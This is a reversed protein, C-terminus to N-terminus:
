AALDQVSNSGGRYQGPTLGTYRKFVRTFHSQDFFGSDLATEALDRGSALLTRARAVRRNVLYAHPTMGTARRFVRLLHFRSLAAERALDDLSVDEALRADLYDRLRRVVRPERGADPVRAAVDAHRQLLLAITEVVLDDQELTVPSAALARHMATVRAALDPDRILCDAFAPEIEADGFVDAAIRRMLSVSPFIARYAFSKEAPRGDHPEGPDMVQITGAPVLRTEGRWVHKQAGDVVVSLGYTDHTHVAFQYTEFRAAMCELNDVHPVRWFRAHDATGFAARDANQHESVTM